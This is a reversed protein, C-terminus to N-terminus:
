GSLAIPLEIMFNSGEGLVSQCSLRGGHQEVIIKYSTTLGLGPGEGVTKTTFFPNFIQTLVEDPIGLANDQIEIRIWDGEPLVQTKILLYRQEEKQCIQLAELANELINFLAQNFYNPFCHVPPLSGYKKQIDILSKGFFQTNLITLTSDICDHINVQKKGVEDSRSFRRLAEVIKQIRLTGTNMSTILKDFDEILYDLDVEQQLIQLEAPTDSCYYQYGYILKVLSHFYDHAHDLNGQIFGIPNNIEHAIGGVMKGLASLKETQVLQVQTNQLQELTQTLYTNKNALQQRSRQITLQHQVRVMVEEIQFPKTIYDAGGVTFARKKDLGDDLASIFIIPIDATETQQKLKICLDYGNIEPMNIDLLILDPQEAQIGVLALQANIATRVDYGVDALTKSLVRLNDPTDDVILINGKLAPLSM